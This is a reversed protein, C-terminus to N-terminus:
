NIEFGIIPTIDIGYKNLLYGHLGISIAAIIVCLFIYKVSKFTATFVDIKEGLEYYFAHGMVLSICLPFVKIPFLDYLSSIGTNILVIVYSIGYAALYYKWRKRIVEM